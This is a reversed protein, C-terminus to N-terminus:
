QRVLRKVEGVDRHYVRVPNIDIGGRRTYNALVRLFVPRYHIMCDAFIQEVCQEHFGNHQRFSLVYKLIDAHSVAQTTTIEIGLTGWDPQSTVPCNSRLLNSYLKHAQANGNNEADYVGLLTADPEDTLAIKAGTKAADKKASGDNSSEVYAGHGSLAKDICDGDPAVILFGSDKDADLEYLEVKVEAGAAMSLDQTIVAAVNEWSDFETLNLSNLYLKLSKSEIINPSHAPVSFRALAVQTVGQEDLWSVEFAHWWDMGVSLSEPQAEIHGRGVNRSIPYLSEPSYIKPYSTQEGLVGHISM